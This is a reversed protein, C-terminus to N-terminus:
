ISITRDTLSELDAPHHSVLLGSIGNERIQCRILATLHRRLKDDLASFPEDLLLLDPRCALARAIGVRQAMGGSLRAPRYDAFTELQVQRLGERARERAATKSMRGILPLAVNEIASLWPLLRTDQFVYATRRFTSIVRGRYGTELGAIIRLLTTKGSGSKGTLGFVEGTELVLKFGNFLRRGGFSLCLDSITLAPDAM